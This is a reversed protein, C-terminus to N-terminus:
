LLFCYFILNPGNKTARFFNVFEKQALESLLIWNQGWSQLARWHWLTFSRRLIKPEPLKSKLCFFAIFYSIQFRKWRTSVFSLNKKLMNPFCSETKASLKCLGETDCFLVGTFIKQNLFNVKWVFSLLLIHFKSEKQESSFFQAIKKPLYLICSEITAWVKGPCEIGCFLVGTFTESELFNGNVCFFATFYWIQVRKPCKFCISWNKKEPPFFTPVRKFLLIWNQELSQM